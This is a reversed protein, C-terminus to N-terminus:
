TRTITGFLVKPRELEKKNAVVGSGRKQKKYINIVLVYATTRSIFKDEINYLPCHLMYLRDINKLHYSHTSKGFM